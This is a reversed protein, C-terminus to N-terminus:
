DPPAEAQAAAILRNVTEVTPSAKKSKWRTFASRTVDAERCVRSMSKGAKRAAEEIQEPTIPKM